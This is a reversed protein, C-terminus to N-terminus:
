VCAPRVRRVQLTSATTTQHTRQATVVRSGRSTATAGRAPTRLPCDAARYTSSDASSPPRSAPSAAHPGWVQLYWPCASNVSHRLPRCQSPPPTRPPVRTGRQPRHAQTSPTRYDSRRHPRPRRSRWWGPAARDTQIPWGSRATTPVGVPPRSLHAADDSVDSLPFGDRNEQLAQGAEFIAAVVRGAHRHQVARADLRALEGPADRRQALQHVTGRHVAAAADRVRAPGRMARGVHGVRMRVGVAGARDRQHVVADDLVRVHQARPQFPRPVLEGGLGVSLGECVQDFLRGPLREFLAHRGRQLVDLARVADGDHAGIVASLHDRCAAARRHQQPHPCALVEDGGVGVGHQRVRAGHDVEGVAVDRHERGVAVAHHVAVGVLLRPGHVGHLPVEVVQGEAGVVM